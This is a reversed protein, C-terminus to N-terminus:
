QMHCSLVIVLLTSWSSVFLAAAALGAWSSTACLMYRSLYCYTVPQRSMVDSERTGRRYVLMGVRELNPPEYEM